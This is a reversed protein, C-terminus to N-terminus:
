VRLRNSAVGSSALYGSATQALTASAIPTAALLWGMIRLFSRMGRM